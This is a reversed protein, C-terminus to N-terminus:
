LFYCKDISFFYVVREKVRKGTIRELAESYAMLQPAYRGAKGELTEPTVHDTKFDIVSLEGNEEFFCDVVGQFLVEDDGGDPYFQGAPCLLTFKFERRVSEARMVRMGVDSQFFRMIRQIDVADTEEVTLLGKMVLRELEVSVGNLSGCKRFDMHQMALHLATGRQAATLGTKGSLLEPRRDAFRRMRVGDGHAEPEPHLVAAEQDFHRGALGTVTLKSPLNPAAAYPYVFGFRDSLIEIYKHTEDPVPETAPALEEDIRPPVNPSSAKSVPVDVASLRNIVITQGRLVPLMIWGAMSKIEELAQPQIRAGADGAGKGTYKLLKEIEREADRFTATNILKERARTM